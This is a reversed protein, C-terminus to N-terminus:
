EMQHHHLMDLRAAFLESTSLFAWMHEMGDRLFQGLM